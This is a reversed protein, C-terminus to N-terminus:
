CLTRYTIFVKGGVYGDYAIDWMRYLNRENFVVASSHYKYSMGWVGHQADDFCSLETQGWLLAGLDDVSGGQTWLEAKSWGCCM